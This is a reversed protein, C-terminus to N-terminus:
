LSLKLYREYDYQKYVEVIRDYNKLDKIADSSVNEAVGNCHYCARFWVVPNWILSTLGITKLRAKPIIHATCVGLETQCGECNGSREFLYHEKYAKSLNSKITADSYYRDTLKCYYRIM